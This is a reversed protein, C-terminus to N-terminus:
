ALEKNTLWPNVFRNPVTKLVSHSPLTILSLVIFFFVKKKKESIQHRTTGLHTQKTGTYLLPASARIMPRM